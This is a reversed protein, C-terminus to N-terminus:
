RHHQESTPECGFPELSGDPFATPAEYEFHIQPLAYKSCNKLVQKFDRTVTQYNM